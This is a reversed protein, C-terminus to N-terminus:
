KKRLIGFGIIALSLSIFGGIAMVYGHNIKEIQMISSLVAGGFVLKSIDLFYKGFEKNFDERNM